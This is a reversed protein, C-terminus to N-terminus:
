REQPREGTAADPCGGGRRIGRSLWRARLMAKQRAQRLRRERFIESVVRGDARVRSARMALPRWAIGATWLAYAVLRESQLPSATRACFSQALRGRMGYARIADDGICFAFRDNLGGKWHQWAPMWVPAGRRAARVLDDPVADHYLLDPRAFLCADAGAARALGTVRDLSHLQHLLNRLSVGDNGWFDGHARLHAGGWRADWSELDPVPAETELADLLLRAGADQAIREGPQASSDFFHGVRIVEAQARLPEELCARLSPATHELARPLGFYCLAIRTIAM